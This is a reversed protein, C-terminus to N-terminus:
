IIKKGTFISLSELVTKEVASPVKMLEVSKVIWVSCGRSDTRSSEIIPLSCIM